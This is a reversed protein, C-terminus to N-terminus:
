PHKRLFQYGTSCTTSGIPFFGILGLRSIGWDILLTGQSSVSLQMRDYDFLWLAPFFGFIRVIDYLIFHGDKSVSGFFQNEEVVAGDLYATVVIRKDDIVRIYMSSASDQFAESRFARHSFSQFVKAFSIAPCTPCDPQTGNYDYYSNFM